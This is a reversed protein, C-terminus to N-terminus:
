KVSFYGSILLYKFTFVTCYTNVSIIETTIKVASLSISLWRQTIWIQKSQFNPPAMLRVTESTFLIQSYFLLCSSKKLNKWFTDRRTWSAEKSRCGFPPSDVGLPHHGKPPDNVVILDPTFLPTIPGNQECHQRHQPHRVGIKVDCWMNCSIIKSPGAGRSKQLGAREVAAAAAPNIM